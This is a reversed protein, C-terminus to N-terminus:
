GNPAAVEAMDGSVQQFASMLQGLTVRRVAQAAAEATLYVGSEDAVFRAMFRALARFDNQNEQIDLLEGIEVDALRAATVHFRVQDNSEAM